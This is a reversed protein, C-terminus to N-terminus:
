SAEKPGPLVRGSGKMSWRTAVLANDIGRILTDDGTAEVKAELLLLEAGKLNDIVRARRRDNATDPLPDEKTLPPPGLSAGLATDRRDSEEFHDSFSGARLHEDTPGSLASPLQASGLVRM